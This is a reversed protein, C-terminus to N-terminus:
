IIHVQQFIEIFYVEINVTVCALWTKDCFRTNTIVVNIWFRGLLEILSFSVTACRTRTNRGYIFKKIGVCTGNM